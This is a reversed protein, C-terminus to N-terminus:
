HNKEPTSAPAPQAPAAVPHRRSMLVLTTQHQGFDPTERIFDYNRSLVSLFRQRDSDSMREMVPSSIAWGYGSYAAVQTPASVLLELLGARNLVHFKKADANSLGPFCSFPGMELGHPVKMGAEVAIYLDQTLLTDCDGSLEKIEMAANHLQELDPMSKKVAWFRDIKAIFWDQALPCGFACLLATATCITMARNRAGSSEFINVLWVAFTAAFLGMVPVQYDDYPHPSFLQLLFVAAAGFFWIQPWPTPSSEADDTEGGAARFLRMCPVAFVAAALPLYFRVLRSLSGAILFPDHGGRSSHFTQAFMFQEPANLLPPGFVAALGLAGGVAFWFFSARASRIHILLMITTVPLLLGLSLRAGASLAILFGAPAAWMAPLQSKPRKGGPCCRTLLLFGATLTLAGLAYTKPLTTFYVHYLNCGTLAFATVAAQWRGSKKAAAAALLATLMCGIIGLAATFIRGGLLGHPSWCSQFAAYFHPLLPGQTFFFDRYLQKGEAVMRSAYLYWGEDQNVAGYRVAFGYLALSACLSLAALLWLWWRSRSEGNKDPSKTEDNM